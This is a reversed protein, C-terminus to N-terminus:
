KVKVLSVKSCRFFAFSSGARSYVRTQVLAIDLYHYDRRWAYAVFQYALGMWGINLSSMVDSFSFVFVRVDGRFAGSPRFPRQPQIYIDM